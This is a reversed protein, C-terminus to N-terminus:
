KGNKKDAAAAMRLIERLGIGFGVFGLVFMLVVGTHLWRDLLYGIGGAVFVPVVLVFPIQTAIAFQKALTAVDKRSSNPDM